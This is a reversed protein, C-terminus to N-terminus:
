RHMASRPREREEYPGTAGAAMGGYYGWALMTDSPMGMTSHDKAELIHREKWIRGRLFVGNLSLNRHAFQVQHREAGLHSTIDTLDIRVGDLISKVIAVGWGANQERPPLSRWQGGCVKRVLMEYQHHPYM